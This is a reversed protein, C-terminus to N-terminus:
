EEIIALIDTQRIVFVKKNDITTEIGAFKSYIVKDNPKVYMESKKGDEFSNGDGVSIVTGTKVNDKNVAGIFIGNVSVEEKDEEIVVRDFLPKLRM